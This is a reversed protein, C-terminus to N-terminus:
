LYNIILSTTQIIYMTLSSTAIGFVLLMILFFCLIYQESSRLDLIFNNSICTSYYKNLSGFMIRSFLLLSYVVSLLIGIGSVFFVFFTFEVLNVIIVSEAIFNATGPFGFNALTFCFFFFGYKPMIQLLGGYNHILRSHFREYLVGILFFLASSSFGHAILLYIGGLIGEYTDSFIGIVALNMHTISSYAIIKKMDIQRLLTFSAYVIGLLAFLIIVPKYYLTALPFFGLLVRIFGYGGLKLLLGALIVSGVTPAEVHAEPLWLHFPFMPIKVAFAFFFLPWLLYSINTQLLSATQLVFFNTTGIFFYLLVIGSLMFLSSFLTYIFFYFMAKIKRSRSGWIVIVGSMPILIMEFYIYFSFLDTTSFVALLLLQIFFLFIVLKKVEYQINVIILFILPFLFTTLVFFILSLGDMAFYPINKITWIYQFLGINKSFVIYEKLFLLSILFIFLSSYISFRKLEIIDKSSFYFFLLLIVSCLFFYIFQLNLFINQLYFFFTNCLSFHLFLFFDPFFFLFYHISVFFILIQFFFFITGLVKCLKFFFQFLWTNFILLFFKNLQKSCSVIFNILTKSFFYFILFNFKTFSYILFFITIIFLVFYISTVLSIM